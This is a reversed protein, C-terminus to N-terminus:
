SCRVLNLSMDAAVVLPDDAVVLLIYSASM